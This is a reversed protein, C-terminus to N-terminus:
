GERHRAGAKCRALGLGDLEGVPSHRSRRRGNDKRVAGETLREGNRQERLGSTCPDPDVAGIPLEVHGEVIWIGVFM